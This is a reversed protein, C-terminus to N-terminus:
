RRHDRSRKLARIETRGPDASPAAWVFLPEGDRGLALRVERDGSDATVGSPLSGAFAEFAGGIPRGTRGLHRGRVTREGPEGGAVNWLVLYDGDDRVLLDPDRQPRDCDPDVLQPEALARGEANYPRALVDREHFSPQDEWVVLFGGAASAGVRPPSLGASPLSSVELEAGLREGAASLRRARVSFGAGTSGEDSLWVVVFGGDALRAVAPADRWAAQEDHVREGPREPRRDRPEALRLPREGAAAPREGDGLRELREKM